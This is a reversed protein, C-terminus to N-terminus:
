LKKTVYVQVGSTEGFRIEANWLLAYEESINGGMKILVGHGNPATFTNTSINFRDTLDSSVYTYAVGLKLRDKYKGTILSLLDAGVGASGMISGSKVDVMAEAMLEIIKGTAVSLDYKVAGKALVKDGFKEIGVQTKLFNRLFEQSVKLEIYNLSRDRTIPNLNNYDDISGVTAIIDGLKTNIQVRGGDVFGAGDLGVLNAIDGEATSLAGLQARVYDGFKKELYIQRVHLKPMLNFDGTNTDWVTDELRAYSPGTAILSVIEFYGNVSVRIGISLTNRIASRNSGDALTENVYGTQFLGNLTVYHNLEQLEEDESLYDPRFDRSASMANQSLLSVLSLTALLKKPNFSKM